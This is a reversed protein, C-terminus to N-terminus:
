GLFSVPIGAFPVAGVAGGGVVRLGRGWGREVGEAGFDGGGVVGEDEWVLGAFRDRFEVGAAGPGERSNDRVDLALGLGRFALATDEEARVRRCEYRERADERVPRTAIWRRRFEHRIRSTHRHKLPPPSSGFRPLSYTSAPNTTDIAVAREKAFTPFSAPLGM